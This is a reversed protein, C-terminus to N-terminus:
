FTHKRETCLSCKSYCGVAELVSSELMCQTQLNEKAESMCSCNNPESITVLHM